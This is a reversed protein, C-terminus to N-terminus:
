RKEWYDCILKKQPNFIKRLKEFTTNKTINDLEKKLIAKELILSNYLQECFETSSQHLHMKKIQLEKQLIQKKLQNKNVTFREKYLIINKNINKLRSKLTNKLSM